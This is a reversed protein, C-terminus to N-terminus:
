FESDGDLLQDSRDNNKRWNRELLVRLLWVGLVGFPMGILSLVIPNLNLVTTNNTAVAIIGIIVGLLFVTIFYTGAGLLGYLWANQKNYKMALNYLWIGMGAILALELM